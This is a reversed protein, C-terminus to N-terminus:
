RFIAGDIFGNVVIGAFTPTDTTKLSQNVRGAVQDLAQKDTASMFGAGGASANGHIHAATAFEAAAKGQLSQADGTISAPLKGNQDVLLLKGPSPTAMVLNSPLLSSPNITVAVGEAANFTLTVDYFRYFSADANPFLRDPDDGFTTYSFLIPGLDPDTAFIGIEYVLITELIDSATYQVQLKVTGSGEYMRGALLADDFKDVLGTYAEPDDEVGPIGSGLEAGVFAIPFAHALSKALLNAGLTTLYTLIAM